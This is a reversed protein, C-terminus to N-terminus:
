GEGFVAADYRLMLVNERWLNQASCTRGATIELLWKTFSAGAQDAIPYGGGFRANIEIVVAENREDVIAQFCLAGFAQGALAQGITAAAKMLAPVRETRAKSVEGARIELRRHPIACRLSSQDFFLNVTYESGMYREQALYGRLGHDISAVELASSINLVGVSSSGSVPKLIVPFNWEGLTALFDPFAATRPTKLPLNELFKCTLLKNRAIAVVTPHSVAVRCGIREFKESCSALVRLEPDITPILLSVGEKECLGFMENAFEPSSCNPVQVALDAETCAASLGPAVDTALLRLEIGLQQAAQRFLRLLEVRRGASSVLVTM